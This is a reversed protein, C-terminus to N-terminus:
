RDPPPEHCGSVCAFTGKCCTRCPIGEVDVHWCGTQPPIEPQITGPTGAQLDLPLANVVELPLPSLEGTRTVDGTRHFHVLRSADYYVLEVDDPGTVIVFDPQGHRAVWAAIVPDRQMVIELTRAGRTHVSQVEGQYPVIREHSRPCGLLTAAIALGAVLSV